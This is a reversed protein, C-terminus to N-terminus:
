TFVVEDHVFRNEGYHFPHKGGRLKISVKSYTQGIFFLWRRRWPGLYYDGNNRWRGRVVFTISCRNSEFHKKITNATHLIEYSGLSVNGDGHYYYPLFIVYFDDSSYITYLSNKDISYKPNNKCIDEICFNVRDIEKKYQIDKIKLAKKKSDWDYYKSSTETETKDVVKKIEERVDKYNNILSEGSKSIILCAAQIIIDRRSTNEISTKAIIINTQSSVSQSKEVHCDLKIKM